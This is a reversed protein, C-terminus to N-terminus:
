NVEGEICFAENIAAVGDENTPAGGVVWVNRLIHLSGIAAAAAVQVQRFCFHPVFSLCNRAGRRAVEIMLQIATASCTPENSEDLFCSPPYTAVQYFLRKPMLPNDILFFGPQGELWHRTKRTFHRQLVTESFLVTPERRAGFLSLELIDKTVKGNELIHTFSDPFSSPSLFFNRRFTALENENPRDRQIRKFQHDDVLVLISTTGEPRRKAVEVALEFSREPLDGIEMAYQQELPTAKPDNLISSRVIPVLRRQSERYLVMFHGAVIALNGPWSSVAELITNRMQEEFM